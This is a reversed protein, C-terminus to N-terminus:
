LFFYISLHHLAPFTCFKTCFLELCFLLSQQYLVYKTCSMKCQFSVIHGIIIWFITDWTITAQFCDDYIKWPEQMATINYTNCGLPDYKPSMFFVKVKCKYIRLYFHQYLTATNPNKCPCSPTSERLSHIVESKMTLVLKAKCAFSFKYFISLFPQTHQRLVVAIINSGQSIYNTIKSSLTTLQSPPFQFYDPCLVSIRESFTFLQQQSWDERIKDFIKSSQVVHTVTHPM